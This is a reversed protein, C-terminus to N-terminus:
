RCAEADSTAPAVFCATRLYRVGGHEQHILVTQRGNAAASRLYKLPPPPAAAAGARFAESLVRGVLPGRPVDFGLVHAITPVIDMNGVPLRDVYGQKFDPGIAAMHNYTSDRGFGGHMGQGQQFESDTIQVATQVDGPTLNFVKFAVVIAPRPVKSAGVLNIASLPLTGPVSGYKDDVFVGDVYDYTLLRGVVRQLMEASGDPIYILDSGGNAAVIVRADSGDPKQVTAGILANGGSPHEWTDVRAQNAASGIRVQRFRRSGPVREEPDFVNLQLDYALDVALFGEPLSGKVTDIHGTDTVYDHQASESRTRQGSRDIESRSVTAVGHDSTVVINTNAKIDPHADFWAMLRQLARDGNRVGRRSTEGNVGPTLTGLSDGHNHQTGDPDRSWYVMAFPTTSDATLWPLVFRTTAEDFWDQQVLNAMRTGPTSRDGRYGNNFPSTPGFGNSRTPPATPFGAAAMQAALENPLPLGNGGTADDIIIGPPQPAFGNHLPALASIDQIAAPGLKGIAATRYGRARALGLLTDSGLFNGGFHANLDALVRDDEVFPVPTGPLLSFSGTDYLSFGSWITNSYDGTDGLGHGTAIASANATTFTPFVSHSNEFHVGQTRIAWLAPTDEQSVSGHRLGDAVFVLVNRRPGAQGQALLPLLCALPVLMLLPRLSRIRKM